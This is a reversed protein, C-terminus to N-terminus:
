TIHAVVLNMREFTGEVTVDDHMGTMLTLTARGDFSVPSSFIALRQLSPPKRNFTLIIRLLRHQGGYAACTFTGHQRPPTGVRQRLVSGSARSLPPM